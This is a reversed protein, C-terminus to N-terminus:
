LSFEDIVMCTNMTILSNARYYLIQFMIMAVQVYRLLWTHRALKLLLMSESLVEWAYEHMRIIM